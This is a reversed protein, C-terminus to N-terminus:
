SMEQAVFDYRESRYVSPFLIYRKGGTEIIDEATAGTGNVYYAKRLTGYHQLGRQDTLLELSDLYREGDPGLGMYLVSPLTASRAGSQDYCYPSIVFDDITGSSGVNGFGVWEGSPLRLQANAIAGAAAGPNWFPRNKYDQSTYSWRVTSDSNSVNGGLFLPYPYEDAVPPNGQPLLLEFTMPIYYTSVKAYLRVQGGDVFLWFPTSGDWLTFHPYTTTAGPQLHRTVNTDFGAAGTLEWNFVDLAVNDALRSVTVFIEDTGSLGQGQLYLTEGGSIETTDHKLEAWEENISSLHGQTVKVTFADSVIFDAAGDNITFNIAGTDSLYPTGVTVLNTQLGSVSGTVTFTGADTAAVSCTITWTETVAIPGPQIDTITGNGTGSYATTDLTFTDTVIFDTAGDNIIFFVGGGDFYSGVTATGVLGSVSGTVTFTGGDTAATDCAITWTEGSATDSAWLETLTGNGTGAYSSGLPIGRGTTYNRFLKFLHIHDDATAKIWPM